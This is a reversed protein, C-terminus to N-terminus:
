LWYVRNLQFSFNITNYFSARELCGEAHNKERAIKGFFHTNPQKPHVSMSIMVRKKIMANKHEVM